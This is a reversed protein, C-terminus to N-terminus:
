GGTMRFVAGVTKWLLALDLWFSWNDIYALDKAAWDDFTETAAHRNSIQWTCTIGPRASLRGRGLGTVRDAESVPLPRPGVLSMEGKLVNWLQPLEDMSSKRLFRGVGTIRPDNRIKFAPFPAENLAMLQPKLADANKVMTRFKWISFHQGGMGARRQSYLVPWGSDLVVALTIAAFLPILVILLVAAMAVDFVRKSTSTAPLARTRRVGYTTFVESEGIGGM